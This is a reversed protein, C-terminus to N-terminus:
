FNRGVEIFRELTSDYILDLIYYKKLTVSGNLILGYQTDSHSLGLTNTDSQGVLRIELGDTWETVSGSGFPLTAHASQAGGDGQVRIYQKTYTKSSTIAGAAAISETAVARWVYDAKLNNIEQQVNTVQAGSSSNNLDLVGVMTESTTATKSVFASNVNSSSVPSGSTVAM